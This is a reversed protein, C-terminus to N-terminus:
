CAAATAMASVCAPCWDPRWRRCGRPVGNDAAVAGGDQGVKDCIAGLRGHTFQTLEDLFENIPHGSLYLGLRDKEALLRTRDSWSEVAV